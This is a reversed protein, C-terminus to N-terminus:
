SQNFFHADLMYEVYCLPM